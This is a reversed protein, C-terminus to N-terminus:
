YSSQENFFLSFSSIRAARVAISVTVAATLVALVWARAEPSSCHKSIHLVEQRAMTMELFDFIDGACDDPINRLPQSSTAALQAIFADRAWAFVAARATPPAWSFFPDFHYPRLTLATSPAPEKTASLIACHAVVASTIIAPDDTVSVCVVAHHELIERCTGDGDTALDLPTAGNKPQQCMHCDNMVCHSVFHGRTMM